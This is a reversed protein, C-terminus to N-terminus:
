ITAEVVPNELAGLRDIEIRVCDGPRLFRAPDRTAGIGAPTGTAIVDGPILTMAQSLFAVIEPISFILDRTSGNQLLEDGILLRVGLDHPDGVEDPTVLSPGLPGFTDFSKAYSWQPTVWQHDRATVDNFITYGAVHELAREAAIRRGARGIVFALEAEYDVERSVDPLEIPAGAGVLCNSYKAFVTPVEPIQQGLEQAHDRYNLGVCVIKSPHPVVPLLEVADAEILAHAPPDACVRRVTEWADGGAALLAEIESPLREATSGIDIIGNQIDEGRLVGLRPPGGNRFTVIRM